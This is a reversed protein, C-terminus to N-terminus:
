LPNFVSKIIRINANNPLFILRSSLNLKLSRTINFNIPVLRIIEFMSTSEQDNSQSTSSVVIIFFFANFIFSNEDNLLYYNGNVFLFTSIRCVM